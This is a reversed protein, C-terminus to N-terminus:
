WVIVGADIGFYRGAALRYVFGIWERMADHQRQIIGLGWTEISTM